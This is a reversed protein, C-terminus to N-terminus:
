AKKCCLVSQLLLCYTGGFNRYIEALSCVAVDWFNTVNMIVAMLVM